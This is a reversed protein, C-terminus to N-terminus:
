GGVTVLGVLFGTSAARTTLIEFLAGRVPTPYFGVVVWGVGVCRLGCHVCVQPVHTIILFRQCPIRSNRSIGYLSFTTKLVLPTLSQM